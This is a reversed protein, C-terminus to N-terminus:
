RVFGHQRAPLLHEPLFIGSLRYAVHDAPVVFCNLSTWQHVPHHASTMAFTIVSERRGPTASRCLERCKRAADSRELRGIWRIGNRHGGIKTCVIAGHV